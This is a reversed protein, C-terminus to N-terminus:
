PLCIDVLPEDPQAEFMRPRGVAFGQAHTFGLESVRQLMSESEIGEAVLEYGPQQVLSVVKAMMEAQPGEGCMVQVLSIDFKIVDAPMDGLYRLSSYGSGFDDLAIKFGQGRLEALGESAVQLQNILATETVELLIDRESMHPVFDGLREVIDARMLSSGSINISIGDGSPVRGTELDRLVAGFVANDFEVELQREEVQCLFLDPEILEEGCQIRVLAEYYCTMGDPLSIVPQYHVRMNAGTAIAADIANAAEMSLMASVNRELNQHYVVVKAGGPRKASYMAVNAQRYLNKVGEGSAGYSHALGISLRIPEKVHEDFHEHWAVAELCQQAINEVQEPGADMFMVAFEDAGLRYLRDGPRLTQQVTNAIARLVNDGAGHGYTDNIAKFHDCDMLILSVDAYHGDTIGLLHKWDEAFASRNLCGTLADHHAMKWLRRRKRDLGRHIVELRSQFDDISRRLQDLEMLMMRGPGPQLEATKAGETRLLETYKALRRLPAVLFYGLAVYVALTLMGALGVVQFMHNALLQRFPEDSRASIREFSLRSIVDDAVIREGEGLPLSLAAANVYRLGNEAVLAAVVDVGLAVYGLPPEEPVQSPVPEVTTMFVRGAVGQVMPQSYDSSISDPFSPSREGALPLGNEGYLEVASVFAPLMRSSALRNDKWYSYFLPSLLQQSVEGWSALRRGVHRTRRVLDDVALQLEAQARALDHEEFNERVTELRASTLWVLVLYILLGVLVCTAM